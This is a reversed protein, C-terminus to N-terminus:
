SVISFPVHCMTITRDVQTSKRLGDVEQEPCTPTECVIRDPSQDAGGLELSMSAPFSARSLEVASLLLARRRHYLIIFGQGWSNSSEERADMRGVMREMM